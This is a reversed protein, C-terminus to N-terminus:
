LLSLLPSELWPILYIWLCLYHCLTPGFCFILRIESLDMIFDRSVFKLEQGREIFVVGVKTLRLYM